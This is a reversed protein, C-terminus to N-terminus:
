GVLGTLGFAVEIRSGCPRRGRGGRDGGRRGAHCGLRRACRVRGHGRAFRVGGWRRTKGERMSCTVQVLEYAERVLADGVVFDVGHRAGDRLPLRSVAGKRLSGAGRRLKMFVAMELRQAEDRAASPSFAMLMGPDVAYVKSVSRANDALARTFENVKFLLYAEEYFGLLNSLAERSASVGASKFASATKNLSLERASSALCRSLFQSALLPNRVNYREVVDLNVTRHAYEQLLQVADSSPLSQVPVFGGHELYAFLAHRLAACAMARDGAFRRGAAVGGRGRSLPRVGFFQPPPPLERSLARGRFASALDASLMKSSSGTM